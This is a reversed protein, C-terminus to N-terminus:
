IVTGRTESPMNSKLIEHETVSSGSTSVSYVGITESTASPNGGANALKYDILMYVVAVIDAPITTYGGTYTVRVSAPDASWSPSVGFAPNNGGGVFDSVIRGWTAGLRYLQGTRTDVRYEDADLTTWTGARDREEVSTLTTIPWERLQLVSGGDGNYTETRNASEFGNTMDRGAYRRVSAEAQALMLTIAADSGTGNIGAWAKYNAVTALPM